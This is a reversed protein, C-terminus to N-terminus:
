PASSSRSDASGAKRLHCGPIGFCHLMSCSGPVPPLSYHSELKKQERQERALTDASVLLTLVNEIRKVAPDTAHERLPAFLEMEGDKDVKNRLTHTHLKM